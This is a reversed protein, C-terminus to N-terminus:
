EGQSAPCPPVDEGYFSMFLPSRLGEILPKETINADRQHVLFCPELDGKANISCFYRGGAVCGGIIKRDKCFHISLIPKTQRYAMVRRYVRDEAESLPSEFFVLKVGHAILDDFFAEQDYLDQDEAEYYCTAAYPVKGARLLGASRSLEEDMVTGKVKLCPILNKVRLVQKVFDEDILAGDTMAMFECDQHKNCLAIIEEKARLPEGGLFIYMFTGLSKAQEIVDDWQDFGLDEGSEEVAISIIWPINCGYKDRSDRIQHAALANANIVLNEFLRKRTEDELDTFLSVLLQYWNSDKREIIERFLARQEVLVDKTTYKDLWDILKPLNEEPDRDLFTYMSMLGLKKIEDGVISM